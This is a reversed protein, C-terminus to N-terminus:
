RELKATFAIKRHQFQKQYCLPRATERVAVQPCNGLLHRCAWFTGPTLPVEVQLVHYSWILSPATSGTAEFGWESSARCRLLFSGVGEGEHKLTKEIVEGKATDVKVLFYHLPLM